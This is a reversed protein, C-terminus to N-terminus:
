DSVSFIVAGYGVVWNGRSEPYDDGSNRYHLVECTAAGQTRAFRMAAVVPGIGCCIQNGYNWRKLVEDDKMQEIALLTSKDTKTVLDYSSDHLLDTSAIVVIKRKAALKDLAAVLADLTREDHDGILAVVLRAEPLAAQVFPIENEASHEGAHPGYDAFIRDSSGDLLDIAEQDLQTDGIPTRVMDGDMLAVGRFGARHSFGLVVATDLVHGAASSQKLARFTYGAVGGSYQYGAHPAIASVIRGEIDPVLAADMYDEVVRRLEAADGPFWRGAGSAKRIVKNQSKM